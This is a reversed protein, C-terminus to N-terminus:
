HLSRNQGSAIVCNVKRRSFLKITATLASACLWDTEHEFGSMFCEHAGNAGQVIAGRSDIDGRFARVCGSHVGLHCAYEMNLSPQPLADTRKHDRAAEARSLEFHSM